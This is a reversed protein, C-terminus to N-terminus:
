VFQRENPSEDKIDRTTGKIDEVLAKVKDPRGDIGIYSAYGKEPERQKNGGSYEGTLPNNATIITLGDGSWEFTNYIHKGAYDKHAVKKYRSLGHRSLLAQFDDASGFSTLDFGWSIWGKKKTVISM